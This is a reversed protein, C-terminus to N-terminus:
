GLHAFPLGLIKESYLRPREDNNIVIGLPCGHDAIFNSLGQLERSRVTQAHKIEIPLLGFDGELVLDVEGGASTRYHSASYTIGRSELNRLIEEIVMGEWSRGVVPHSLLTRFDPIRLFHHLLGTDRLYGKPHKVLRKLSRSGTFAPLHRWLFTGHAIAIYDRVTPQSVGLARAIEAYNIVTGSLAGLTDLFQRFRDHAIRPFLRALDRQLYTRIYNERWTKKFRPSDKLWPEPYGGQFWYRLVHNIDSPSTTQACLAATDIKNEGLMSFFLSDFREETEAFSFPAMEIIAVRGALSESVARVLEPSSSGTVVFRGTESRESDIAVRLANFVAPFLQAEDIIVQRPHLRLFLDADRSVAEYDSQRELDFRQWETGLTQTLTTKGCQRAGTLVVCPFMGLYEKLLSEYCRKM